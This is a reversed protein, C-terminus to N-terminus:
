QPAGKGATRDARRGLIWGNIGWAVAIAAGILAAAGVSAGIAELGTKAQGGVYDAARYVPVDIFQKAKYKTEKDFQSFLMERGPRILAYEGVRRAIILAVIAAFTNWISLGVFGLAIVFPLVTLLATVGFRAAIKGTFVVQVLLTLSQVVFDITAFAATRAERSEFTEEVIRLQEFYIFTNVASLLTVFIAIGILYPSRLVIMIGAFPNGGLASDDKKEEVGPPRDATSESEGAAVAALASRDRQWVGILYRQCLIAGVFGVAGMYLIGSNGVSGVLVATLGPGILAGTTGGAAIFGFLRRVQRGSLIELLFSWFVSVLLLNFVSIWVYFVSAVNRDAGDAEILLGVSVFAVAVFGYIWPLVVSRRFRAFLWGFLPVLAISFIATWLWLDAVEARGIQTAFTERVPRVAFYSGLVFFFLLFAAAVTGREAPEINAFRALFRDLASPERGEPATVTSM